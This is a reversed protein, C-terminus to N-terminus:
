LVNCFIMSTGDGLIAGPNDDTVIRDYMFKVGVQQYNPLYRSISAPVRHNESLVFPKLEFPGFKPFEFDPKMKSISDSKRKGHQVMSTDSWLSRATQPSRLKAAPKKKKRESSGAKRQPARSMVKCLDDDSDDDDDVLHLKKDGQISGPWENEERTSSEYKKHKTPTPDNNAMMSKAREREHFLEIFDEDDSSSDGDHDGIQITTRSKKSDPKRVPSGEVSMQSMPTQTLSISSAPSAKETTNEGVLRVPIPSRSSSFVQRSVAPSPLKDRGSLAKTKTAFAASKNKAQKPAPPPKKSPVRQNRMDEKEKARKEEKRKREALVRRRKEIDFFKMAGASSYLVLVTRSYIGIRTVLAVDFLTRLM